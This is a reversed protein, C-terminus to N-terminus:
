VSGCIRFARITLMALAMCIALLHCCQGPRGVSQCNADPHVGSAPHWLPRWSVERRICCISIFQGADIQQVVGEQPADASHLAVFMGHDVTFVADTGARHSGHMVLTFAEQAAVM